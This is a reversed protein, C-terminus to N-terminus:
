AHRQTAAAVAPRAPCRLSPPSPFLGALSRGSASFLRRLLIPPFFVRGGVWGRGCSVGFFVFVVSFGPAQESGPAEGPWCCCCCCCFGRAAIGSDWRRRSQRAPFLFPAGLRGRWLCSGGRRRRRRRRCRRRRDGGRGRREGGRRGRRPSISLGMVMDVGRLAERGRGEARRRVGRAADRERRARAAAVDDDLAQARARQQAAQGRPERAPEPGAGRGARLFPLPLPFVVEHQGEVRRSPLRRHLVDGQPLHPFDKKRKKKRRSKGEKEGGGSM